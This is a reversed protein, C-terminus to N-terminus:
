RGSLVVYDIDIVARYTDGGGILVEGYGDRKEFPLKAQQEQYRRLAEELRRAKETEEDNNEVAQVEQVQGRRRRGRQVLPKVAAQQKNGANGYASDDEEGGSFLSDAGNDEAYLFITRVVYVRRDAYANDLQTVMKRIAEMSGSVELQYHYIKYAGATEVSQLFAGPNQVGEDPMAAGDGSGGSSDGRRIRIDYVTKIGSDKIRRLVDSIIDLHELIIPFDDSYYNPAAQQQNGIGIMGFGLGSAGAAIQIGDGLDKFLQERVNNMVRALRDGSGDLYRPIGLASFLVEDANEASLPEVTYPQAAKIFEAQAQHWNSFKPQFVSSLFYKQRPYDHSNIQDWEKRFEEMFRQETITEPTDEGFAGKRPKLVSFFKDLAPQMPRGFRSRLDAAVRQYLNIDQQLLAKNGEVPAPTKKIIDGIQRRFDEVKTIYGYMKVYEILTFVLLGLAVLSCASVVALLGFNNKIFRNNVQRM